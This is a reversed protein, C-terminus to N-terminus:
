RLLVRTAKTGIELLHSLGVIDANFLFGRAGEAIPHGLGAAYRAMAPPLVSSMDFLARAFSDPLGDPRAAFAVPARKAATYHANFLLVKGDHSALRRLSEAAPVPHGDTSEGDTLNVVVPPFGAPHQDIWGQVLTAARKLATCMLTAGQAVPEVWVPFKVSLPLAGGAGDPVLRQREEVRLPLLAVDSIPALDRGALPGGLASGVRGGYGLVGVHFYDRIGDEKACMLALEQLVRNVADAVQVCKKQGTCDVDDMSGSQDLLFLFCAPNQRNIPATYPM